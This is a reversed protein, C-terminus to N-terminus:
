GAVSAALIETPCPAALSGPTEARDELDFSREGMSIRTRRDGCDVATAYIM